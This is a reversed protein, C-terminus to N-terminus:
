LRAAEAWHRTDTYQQFRVIKGNRIGWIHAFPADIRAGTAKWTGRYRGEAVVTGGGDIVNEPTVTFNEVDSVIRQFVGGAVAEPGIYPNRDAYM